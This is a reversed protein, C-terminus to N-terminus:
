YVKLLFCFNFLNGVKDFMAFAHELNENSLLKKRNVTAIVFESYEISGSGDTDVSEMIANVEKEAM